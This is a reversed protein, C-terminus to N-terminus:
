RRFVINMIITLVISVLLMTTIPIYLTMGSRAFSLDGPLRGFWHLKAILLLFGGLMVLIAGIYILLRGLGEIPM